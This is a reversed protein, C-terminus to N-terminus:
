TGHQASEPGAFQFFFHCTLSFFDASTGVSYEPYILDRFQRYKIASAFGTYLFNDTNASLNAANKIVYYHGRTSVLVQLVIEM